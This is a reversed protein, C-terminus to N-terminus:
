DRLGMSLGLGLGRLGVGWLGLLKVHWWGDRREVDGVDADYMWSMGRGLWLGVM